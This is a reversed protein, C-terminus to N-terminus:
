PVLVGAHMVIILAVESQTVGLERAIQCISKGEVYLRIVGERIQERDASAVIIDGEPADAYQQAHPPLSRAEDAKVIYDAEAECRGEENFGIYTETRGVTEKLAEIEGRLARMEAKSAKTDTQFDEMFDEVNEYMELLKGEKEQLDRNQRHLDSFIYKCLYAIVCAMVFILFSMAYYEM